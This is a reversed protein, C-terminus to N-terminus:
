NEPSTAPKVILTAVLAHAVDAHRRVAEADGGYPRVIPTREDTRGGNRLPQGSNRVEFDHAILKMLAGAAVPNAWPDEIVDPAEGQEVAGALNLAVAREGAPDEVRRWASTSLAAVVGESGMADAYVGLAFAITEAATPAADQPPMDLAGPTPPLEATM